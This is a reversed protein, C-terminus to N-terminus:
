GRALEKLIVSASGAWSMVARRWTEPDIICSEMEVLGDLEAVLELARARLREAEFRDLEAVAHLHRAM